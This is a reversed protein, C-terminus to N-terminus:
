LQQFAITRRCTNVTLARLATMWVFGFTRRGPTATATAVVSSGCGKLAKLKCVQQRFRATASHFFQNPEYVAFL